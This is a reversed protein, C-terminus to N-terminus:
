DKVLANLIGSFISLMLPVWPQLGFGLLRLGNVVTSTIKLM